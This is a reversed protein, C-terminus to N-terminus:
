FNRTGTGNNTSPEAITPAPSRSCSLGRKKVRSGGDSIIDAGSIAYEGENL